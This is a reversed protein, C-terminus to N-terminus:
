ASAEMALLGYHGDYRRYLVRGRSSRPELFFVFPGGGLDLLSRADEVERAVAAERSAPVATLDDTRGAPAMLYWDDGDHVVVCDAGLDANEFLYFDYDLDTAAIVAHEPTIPAPAVPKRRVIRREGPPRDYVPPRSSPEDGRHWADDRHRLRGSAARDRAAELRRRLRRELLDVSERVTSAAVQARVRRGGADVQVKAEAGLARSPDASVNLDLRAWVVPAPAARAVLREIKERGYAEDAAAIEGESHVTIDM